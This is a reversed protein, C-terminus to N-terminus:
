IRRKRREEREERERKADGDCGLERREM